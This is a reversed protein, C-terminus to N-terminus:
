FSNEQMFDQLANIIYEPKLELYLEKSELTLQKKNKSIFLQPKVEKLHISRNQPENEFTAWSEKPIFPSFITFTPKNFAKALHVSGGENAIMADCHYALKIFDRLDDCFIEPYLKDSPTVNELIQQVLYRQSPLYNFVLNIKYNNTLFNILAVTYSIPLSKQLTSGLIGFIITKRKPNVKSLFNKGQNIEQAELFLEPKVEFEFNTALAKLLSLRDDIAKGYKSTKHTLFPIQNTYAWPLTRKKYSIRETAGSLLSLFQSGLKVYPDIILDFKESNIFYAIKILSGFHQLKKEEIAIIKNINPNNKLVPAAHKNCLFFIVSNPYLKKLNKPIISALLVDGIRKNQIILIKM